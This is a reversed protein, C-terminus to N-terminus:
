EGDMLRQITRQQATRKASRKDTHYDTVHEVIMPVGAFANSLFMVLLVVVATEIDTAIGIVVSTAVMVIINGAVVLWPTQSAGDSHRLWRVLVAYGICVVFLTIWVLWSATNLLIASADM